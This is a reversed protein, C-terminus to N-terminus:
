FIVKHFHFCQIANLACDSENSPSDDFQQPVHQEVPTTDESPLPEQDGIDTM